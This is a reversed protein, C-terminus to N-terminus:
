FVKTLNDIKEKTRTFSSGKYINSAPNKKTHKVTGNQLFGKSALKKKLLLLYLNWM